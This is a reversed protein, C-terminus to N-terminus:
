CGWGELEIRSAVFTNQAARAAFNGVSGGNGTSGSVRSAASGQHRNKICVAEEVMNASIRNLDSRLVEVVNAIIKDENAMCNKWREDADRQVAMRVRHEPQTIAVEKDDPQM